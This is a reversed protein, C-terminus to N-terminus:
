HSCSTHERFIVKARDMPCQSAYLPYEAAITSRHAVSYCSRFYHEFDTQVESRFQDSLWCCMGTFIHVCCHLSRVLKFGHM